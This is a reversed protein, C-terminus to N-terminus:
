PGDQLPQTLEVLLGEVLPQALFAILTNGAGPRPNAERLEVGRARLWRMADEIDDVQLAVHQIGEGHEDLWRRNFDDALPQILEVLTGAVPVFGIRLVGPGYDEWHQVELGLADRLTRAVAQADRVVVGIHHIGRVRM